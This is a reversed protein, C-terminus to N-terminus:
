FESRILSSLTVVMTHHHATAELGDKPRYHLSRAQEEISKRYMLKYDLWELYGMKGFRGKEGDREGTPGEEEDEVMISVKRFSGDTVERPIKRSEESHYCYRLVFRCSEESNDV